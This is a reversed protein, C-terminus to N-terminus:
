CANQCSKHDLTCLWGKPSVLLSRMADATTLQSADLLLLRASPLSPANLMRAFAGADPGDDLMPLRRLVVTRREAEGITSVIDPNAVRSYCPSPPRQACYRGEAGAQPAVSQLVYVCRSTESWEGRASCRALPLVPRRGSLMAASHLLRVWLQYEKRGAALLPHLFAVLGQPHTSAMSPQM